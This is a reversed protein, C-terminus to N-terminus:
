PMSPCSHVRNPTGGSHLVFLPAAFYKGYLRSCFTHFPCALSRWSHASHLRWVWCQEEVSGAAVGAHLRGSIGRFSRSPAGLHCCTNWQNWDALEAAHSGFGAWVCRYGLLCWYTSLSWLSDERRSLVTRATRIGFCWTRARSGSLEAWPGVSDVSEMDVNNRLDIPSM